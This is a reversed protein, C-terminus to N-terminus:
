GKSAAPALWAILNIWYPRVSSPLQAGISLFRNVDERNLTRTLRLALFWLAAGVAIAAALGGFGPVNRVVLLAGLAMIAGSLLIRGCEGLRLDLSDKRWVYIWIGLAALTQATGNAIAAGNAGYRGVLLVDLGLDVVGCICGWYILFTQRETAQLLFTPANVLAKPIAFLAMMALTPIMPWYSPLYVNLVLPRSVCAMGVLLPVAVLLAYRGGDVTMEKLRGAGRGYQAMMTSALSGAFLTPLLLMRDVLSFPLSFFLMQSNDKNLAGLILVDSRDWVVLNLILLALGQGSYNVMRRRLEEPLAGRQVGGLWQEVSRLKLGCEVCAGVLLAASLGVFQWGLMLTVITVIATIAVGIVAPTTNRRVAEGANNAQSPITAILRPIIAVILLTSATLFHRDGLWFIVLFGIAAALVSVYTQLRLTALYTARAIDARGNNLYEAMYKRTTAPLGFSGMTLTITTLMVIQNYSGLRDKGLADYGIVRAIMVSTVVSAIIGFIAEVSGWATNKAVTRSNSVVDPLGSNQKNKM